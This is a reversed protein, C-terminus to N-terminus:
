CGHCTNSTLALFSEMMITGSATMLSEPHFQVGFVPLSRHRLAMIHGDEDRATVTLTEPFDQEGVIWSHYRGVFAATDAFCRMLPDRSDIDKLVSVHGHAPKQLKELHGGYYEAIAQCGLCIGLIPKKGVSSGIIKMLGATESPLGPGPSLIIADYEHLRDHDVADNKVVSWRITDADNAICRRLLGV